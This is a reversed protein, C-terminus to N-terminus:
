QRRKLEYVAQEILVDLQENSIKIGKSQLFLIVAQKKEYGKKESNFVQEYAKVAFTVWKRIYDLESETLRQRALPILIATLIIAIISFVAQWLETTM